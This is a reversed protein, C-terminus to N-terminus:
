VDIRELEKNNLKEDLTKTSTETTTEELEVNENTEAENELDTKGGIEVTTSKGEISDNTSVSSYAEKPKRLLFIAILISAVLCMGSLVLLATMFSYKDTLTSALIPGLFSGTAWMMNVGAVITGRFQGKYETDIISNVLPLQPTAMLAWVIGQLFLTITMLWVPLDFGNIPTILAVVIMSIVMIITRKSVFKDIFRGTLPTSITYSVILAVLILSTWFSSYQYRNTLEVILIPELGAFMAGGVIGCFGLLLLKFNKFIVKADRFSKKEEDSHVHVPDKMFFRLALDIALFFTM